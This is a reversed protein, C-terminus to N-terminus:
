RIRGSSILYQKTKPNSYFRPLKINLKEALSDDMGDGEEEGEQQQERQEELLTTYNILELKIGIYEQPQVRVQSAIM